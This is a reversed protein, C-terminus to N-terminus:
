SWAIKSPVVLNLYIVFKLNDNAHKVQTRASTLERIATNDQDNTFIPNGIGIHHLYPLRTIKFHLYNYVSNLKSAALRVM